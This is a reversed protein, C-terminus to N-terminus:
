RIVVEDPRILGLHDRAAEDLLDLDLHSESLLLARNELAAREEGLRVLEARLAQEEATVAIMAFVGNDGQLASHGFNAVGALIALCFLADFIRLRQMEGTM